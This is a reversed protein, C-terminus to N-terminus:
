LIGWYKEANFTSPDDSKWLSDFSSFLFLDSNFEARISALAAKQADPSAVAQDHSDGQHPWGSETVVVRKNGCAKQVRAVEGKVFKGADAAKTNPDFWAHINVLVLDSTSCVGPNDIVAPVTEVAGVPGNFGANRLASRAQDITSQADSATMAKANVRENEVSVLSIIDWSGGNQQKVADSLASVVSDVDQLPAYIGGMLKQGNKKAARVAVPIQGCDNGYIRVIGYDKMTDFDAAIEDTTKCDVNNTTGKYPDYTIGLPFSDSSSTSPQSAPAEQAQVSPEPAPVQAESTPAPAPAASTPEPAVFTPKPAPPPLVASSTPEVNAVVFSSPVDSSSPSPPPAPVPQPSEAPASTPVVASSAVSTPEVSTSPVSPVREVTSTLYPAGNEDVYVVAEAVTETVFVVETTVARKVNLPHAVTGIVLLGSLALASGLKM